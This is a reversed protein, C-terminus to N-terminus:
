EAETFPNLFARVQEWYAGNDDFEEWLARSGHNGKTEPVFKQASETQISEFIASWNRAENRASTVFVPVTINAASQAVWTKPKGFRGFYEGPAFSLVGDVMEPNEGAIVLALAASYSSGWLIVKGTAHNEKVFEIAAVMDQQADPFDTEVGRLLAFKFTDNDVNNVAKGSRQDIALCNFGLENLKPAIERYEGRSWGAQHCLVIFPTAKDEHPAYLDGTISVEDGAPFTITEVGGEEQAESVSCGLQTMVLVACLVKIWMVDRWVYILFSNWPMRVSDDGFAVRHGM